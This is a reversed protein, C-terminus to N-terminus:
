LLVRKAYRLIQQRTMKKGIKHAMFFGRETSSCIPIKFCLPLSFITVKILFLGWIDIYLIPKGISQNSSSMQFYFFSIHQQINFRHTKVRLFM